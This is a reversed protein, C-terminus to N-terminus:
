FEQLGKSFRDPRLYRHILEIYRQIILLETSTKTHVLLCSLNDDLISRNVHGPTGVGPTFYLSREQNSFNKEIVKLSQARTHFIICEEPKHDAFVRKDFADLGDGENHLQKLPKPRHTYKIHVSISLFLSIYLYLRMTVSRAKITWKKFIINAFITNDYNEIFNM